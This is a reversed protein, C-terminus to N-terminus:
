NGSLLEGLNRLMDIFVNILDFLEFLFDILDDLWSSKAHVDSKM